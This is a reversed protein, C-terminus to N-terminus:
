NKSSQTALIPFRTTTFYLRSMCNKVSSPKSLVCFTGGTLHTQDKEMLQKLSAETGILVFSSLIDSEVLRDLIAVLKFNQEINEITEFILETQANMQQYSDYKQTFYDNDKQGNVNMCHIDTDLPAPINEFKNLTKVYKNHASNYPSIIWETFNHRSECLNKSWCLPADPPRSCVSNRWYYYESIVRDIPDRIITLYFNSSSSQSPFESLTPIYNKMYGQNYCDQLETFSCHTAGFSKSTM